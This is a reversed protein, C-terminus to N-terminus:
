DRQKECRKLKTLEIVRTACETLAGGYSGHPDACRWTTARCKSSVKRARKDTVCDNNHDSVLALSVEEDLQKNYENAFPPLNDIEGGANM